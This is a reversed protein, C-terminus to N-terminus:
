LHKSGGDDPLHLYYAGTFRQSLEVLSCPAIDWFVVMKM